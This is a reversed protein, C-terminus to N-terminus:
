GLAPAPLLGSRETARSPAPVDDSAGADSPRLTATSELRLRRDRRDDGYQGIVPACTLPVAPVEAGQLRWARRMRAAAPATNAAKSRAEAQPPEESDSECVSAAGVVDASLRSAVGDVATVVTAAASAFSWAPSVVSGAEAVCVSAAGAADASTGAISIISTAVPSGTSRLANNGASVGWNNQNQAGWQGVQRAWAGANSCNARSFAPRNSTTPM